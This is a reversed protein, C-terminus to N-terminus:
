RVARWGSQHFSPKLPEVDPPPSQQQLERAMASWESARRSWEDSSDPFLCSSAQQRCAEARELLLSLLDKAM